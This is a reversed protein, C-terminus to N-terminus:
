GVVHKCYLLHIASGGEITRRKYLASSFAAAHKHAVPDGWGRRVVPGRNM